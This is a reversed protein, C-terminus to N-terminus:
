LPLKRELCRIRRELKTIIRRQQLIILRYNTDTYEDLYLRIAARSLPRRTQAIPQSLQVAPLVSKTM